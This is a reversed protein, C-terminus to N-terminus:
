AGDNTYGTTGRRKIMLEEYEDDNLHEFDDPCIENNDEVVTDEMDDNNTNRFLRKM